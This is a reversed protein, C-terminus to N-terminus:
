ISSDSSKGTKSTFGTKPLYVMPDLYANTPALPMRYVKGTCGTSARETIRAGEEGNVGNSAYVTLHLHPGTSHGTNGSYGILDGKNVVQGASVKILSLHGYATSLGNTHRIFIWKGFSAKNCTKDTDGTGEVTGDYVSYVPTGVEARFDVGSHSGSTYLRRADVTKGFRQTIVPNDIPWALNATSATPLSQPNIVFKLKSEYERVDAEIQQQQQKLQAVLKQYESEKSKTEKLITDKEKRQDSIIKEKDSLEGSLSQLESKSKVLDQQAYALKLSRDRMINITGRLNNQLAALHQYDQLFDSLTGQTLFLQIAPRGDNVNIRRLSDAIADRNDSINETLGQIESINRTLSYNTKQIKTQTTSLSTELIKETSRLKGVEQNLNKAQGSYTEAQVQYEQIQAELRKIEAEKAQIQKEIETKVVPSVQAFLTQFPLIITLFIGVIRYHNM